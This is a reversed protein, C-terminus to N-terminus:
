NLRCREIKECQDSLKIQLGVNKLDIKRSNGLVSSALIM